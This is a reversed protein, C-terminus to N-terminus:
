WPQMDAENPYFQRGYALFSNCTTTDGINYYHSAISYIHVPNPIIEKKYYVSNEQFDKKFQNLAVAENLWECKNFLWDDLILSYNSFYDILMWPLSMNYSMMHGEHFGERFHIHPPITSDISMVLKFKNMAKFYTEEERSTGASIYQVASEHLPRNQIATYVSAATIENEFFGSFTGLAQIIDGHREQLYYTFYATRSHGIIILPGNAHYDKQIKPILVQMLYEDLVDAGSKQIEPTLTDTSTLEWRKNELPIGVVVSQPMQGHMTLIDISQLNYNHTYHNQQDFLIILPFSQTASTSDFSQPILLQHYQNAGLEHTMCAMSDANYMAFRQASAFLTITNLVILIVFKM